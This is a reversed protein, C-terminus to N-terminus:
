YYAITGAKPPWTFGALRVARCSTIAGLPFIDGFVSSLPVWVGRACVGLGSEKGCVEWGMGRGGCDEGRGESGEGGSREGGGGVLVSRRGRRGHREMEGGGRGNCGGRGGGAPRQRRREGGNRARSTPPPPPPPPPTDRHHGHRRRRVPLHPMPVRRLSATTTSPSASPPHVEVLVHDGDVAREADAEREGDVAADEDVGELFPYANTDDGARGSRNRCKKMQKSNLAIWGTQQQEISVEDWKVQYNTSHLQWLEQQAAFNVPLMM